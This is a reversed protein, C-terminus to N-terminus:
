TVPLRHKLTSLLLLPFSVTMTTTECTVNALFHFLVLLYNLWFFFHSIKEMQCTGAPM